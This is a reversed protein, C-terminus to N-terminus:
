TLIEDRDTEKQVNYDSYITNPHNHHWNLFLFIPKSKLNHGSKHIHPKHMSFAIPFFVM